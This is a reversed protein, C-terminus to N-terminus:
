RLPRPALSAEQPATSPSLRGADVNGPQLVGDRDQPM